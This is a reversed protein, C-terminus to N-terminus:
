LGKLNAMGGDVGWIQGTVWSSEPDLLFRIVSAPESAEGVRGLPHRKGSAEEKEPTSLLSGALPTRTLSPAVANFRIQQGAYESALSLTLGELAAKAAAIASHFPMGVRVAVTSMLVVSSGGANKLAPLAAQISLVAGMWNLEMTQRFDDPSTRHFPKLPINGPMYALGHLTDPLAAAPAPEGSLVDWSTWLASSGELAQRGWVYVTAGRDQLQRVLAAGIGSRGGVVLYNRGALTAEM